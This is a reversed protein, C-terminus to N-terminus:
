ETDRACRFGIGGSRDLGPATLLLKGHQNLQYTNPFYWISGQPQYYEGGRLVAARTHDDTFEDTWQWANGVLDMVGFPSEGQPHVDVADPGRM